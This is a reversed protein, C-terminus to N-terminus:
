VGYPCDIGCNYLLHFHFFIAHCTLLYSTIYVYKGFSLQFCFSGREIRHYIDLVVEKSLLAGSQNEGFRYPYGLLVLTLKCASFQPCGKPPVSKRSEFSPRFPGLYSKACSQAEIFNPSHRVFRLPLPRFCVVPKTRVFYCELTEAKFM